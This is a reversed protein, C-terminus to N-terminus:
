NIEKEHTASPAIQMFYAFAAAILPLGFTILCVHIFWDNHPQTTDLFDGIAVFYYIAFVSLTYALSFALLVREGRRKVIPLCVIMLSAAWTAYWAFFWPTVFIFAVLALSTVLTVTRITAPRERWLSIAGGIFACAMVVVLIVSWTTRQTLFNFVDPTGYIRKIAGIFADLSNSNRQASPQSSFSNSIESIGHGIWFPAYGILGVGLAILSAWLGRSLGVRWQLRGGAQSRLGNFILALMFFVLMPFAIFKILAACTFAILPWVYGRLRIPSRHEARAALLIGLLLFTVMFVDNHGSYSSELLILPNWAYLLTGGVVTRPSRGMTRLTATVLLTNIL